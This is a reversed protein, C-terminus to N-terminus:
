NPLRPPGDEAARAHHKLRHVLADLGFERTGLGMSQMVERVFDDPIALTVAPPQDNVAAFVVSLFAAITPSQRTDVEAYFHLRGDVLEPYIAVPTQCEPVSFKARDLALFREPLPELKRAYALLAQMKEERGMLRFRSLIREISPPLGAGTHSM